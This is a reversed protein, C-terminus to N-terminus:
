AKAVRERGQCAGTRGYINWQVRRPLTQSPIGVAERSLFGQLMQALLHSDEVSVSIKTTSGGNQRGSRCLKIMKSEGAKQMTKIKTKAQDEREEMTNSREEKDRRCFLTIM